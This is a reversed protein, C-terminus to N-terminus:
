RELSSPLQTGSVLDEHLAPHASRRAARPGAPSRSLAAIQATREARRRHTQSLSPDTSRARRTGSGPPPSRRGSPDNPAHSVFGGRSARGSGLTTASLGGGGPLDGSSDQPVSPPRGRGQVPTNGGPTGESCVATRGLQGLRPLQTDHRAHFRLDDFGVGPAPGAQGPWAPAVQHVLFRVARENQFRGDHHGLKLSPEHSVADQLCLDGVGLGVWLLANWTALTM